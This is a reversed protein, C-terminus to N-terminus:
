AVMLADEVEILFTSDALRQYSQLFGLRKLNLLVM